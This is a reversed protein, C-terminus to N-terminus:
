PGKEAKLLVRRMDNAVDAALEEQERDFKRLRNPPLAGRRRDFKEVEELAIRLRKQAKNIALASESDSAEALKKYAAICLLDPASLRFWEGNGRKDKFLRHLEAELKMMNPVKIHLVLEVHHPLKPSVMRMRNEVNKCRGIKYFGSLPGLVYVFGNRDVMHQNGAEKEGHESTPPPRGPKEPM